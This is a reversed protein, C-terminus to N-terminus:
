KPYQHQPPFCWRKQLLCARFASLEETTKCISLLMEQFTQCLMMIQVWHLSLCVAPVILEPLGEQVSLLVATSNQAIYSPWHKTSHDGFGGVYLHSVHLYDHSCQRHWLHHSSFLRPGKPNNNRHNGTGQVYSFVVISYNRRPFKFALVYLQGAQILCVCSLPLNRATTVLLCCSVPCSCCVGKEKM